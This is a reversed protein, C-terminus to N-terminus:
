FFHGPTLLSFYYETIDQLSFYEEAILMSKKRSTIDMTMM